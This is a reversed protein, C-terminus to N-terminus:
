CITVDEAAYGRSNRAPAFSVMYGKPLTHTMTNLNREEILYNRGDEGAIYGYGKKADYFTVKGTM